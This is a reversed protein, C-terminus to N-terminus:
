FCADYVNETFCLPWSIQNCSINMHQETPSKSNFTCIRVLYEKQSVLSVEQKKVLLLHAHSYPDPGSWCVCPYGCCDPHLLAIFM